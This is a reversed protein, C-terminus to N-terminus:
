VKRGTTPIEGPVPVLDRLKARARFIRSKVTGEEVRLAQAIERYSLNQCARLVLVEREGPDLADLAGLVADLNGVSDVADDVDDMPVNDPVHVSRLRDHLRDFRRDSRRRTHFVNRAIGYLWPRFAGLAPDFRTRSTFAVAFVDGTVEDAIRRGGLVFLYAWIESHYRNFLTEFSDPADLSARVVEADPRDDRLWRSRRRRGRQVGDNM